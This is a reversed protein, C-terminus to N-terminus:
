VIDYADLFGYVHMHWVEDCRTVGNQTYSTKKRYNSWHKTKEVHEDCVYM